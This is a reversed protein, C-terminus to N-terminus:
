KSAPEGPVSIRVVWDGPDEWWRETEMGDQDIEDPGVSWLTAGRGPASERRYRFPEGKGFTDIPISKLHGREVLQALSAPFEHRERYHLQLAIVLVLGSLRM